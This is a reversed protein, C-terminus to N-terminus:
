SIRREVLAVRRTPPRRLARFIEDLRAGVSVLSHYRRVTNDLNLITLIARHKPSRSNHDSADPSGPYTRRPKREARPAVARILLEHLESTENAKERLALQVDNELDSRCLTPRVPSPAAERRGSRVQDADVERPVILPRRAYSAIWLRRLSLCQDSGIRM